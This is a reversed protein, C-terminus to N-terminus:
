ISDLFSVLCASDCKLTLSCDMEKNFEISYNDELLSSSSLMFQTTLSSSEKWCSFM